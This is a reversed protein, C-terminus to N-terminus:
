RRHAAPATAQLAAPQWRQPGRPASSAHAASKPGSRPAGAAARPWPVSVLSAPVAVAATRALPAHGGGRGRHPRAEPGAFVGGCALAWGLVAAPTCSAAADVTSLYSCSLDFVILLPPKGDKIKKQNQESNTRKWSRRHLLTEMAM